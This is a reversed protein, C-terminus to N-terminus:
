SKQELKKVLNLRDTHRGGEFTSNLFTGVIESAVGYGIVRSGIVLVNSDNHQRSLKSSYIDNCLAARIGNIKNAAISMGIGTGCILIGLSNENNLVNECVKEAYDPYNVSDDSYPGCDFVNYEKFDKLLLSVLYFKLEYGAHDSAIYLNM